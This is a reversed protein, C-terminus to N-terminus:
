LNRYSPTSPFPKTLNEPSFFAKDLQLNMAASTIILRSKDHTKKDFVEIGKPIWEDDVRKFSLISFDRLEEKKSSLYTAQLLSSFHADIVIRVKEYLLGHKKLEAPLDALFLYAFRGKVRKFTEYTPNKWLLFARSLDIPNFLQGKIIPSFLEAATLEKQKGSEVVWTQPIESMRCLIRISSSTENKPEIKILLSNESLFLVGSFVVEKGKRPLHALEFCFSCDRKFRASKLLELRNMPNKRLDEAIRSFAGEDGERSPSGFLSISLFFLLGM